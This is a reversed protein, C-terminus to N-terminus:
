EVIFGLSAARMKLVSLSSTNIGTALPMFDSTSAGIRAAIFESAAWFSVTFSAAKSFSGSPPDAASQGVTVASADAGFVVAAECAAGGGTWVAESVGGITVGSGVGGAGVTM